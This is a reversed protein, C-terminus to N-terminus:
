VEQVAQDKFFTGGPLGSVDTDFWRVGGLLESPPFIWNLKIFYSM